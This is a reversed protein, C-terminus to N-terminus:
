RRPVDGDSNLDVDVVSADGGDHEHNTWPLWCDSLTPLLFLVHDLFSSASQSVATAIWVIEESEERSALRALQGQKHVLIADIM